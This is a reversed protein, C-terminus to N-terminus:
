TQSQDVLKTQDGLSPKDQEFYVGMERIDQILAPPNELGAFHGGFTHFKYSVLNGIQSIYEQPWFGVNYGFQSFLMPADTPAKTYVEPFGNANQAYMWLASLFSDTLYYLSVSTLIATNDLVSPPTGARPDAWSHRVARLWHRQAAFILQAILNFNFNFFLSRVATTQEILYGKGISMWDAGRQQTVKEEPSLPINKEELEQATPPVFNVWVFHGARVTTNFSSYLSYAVASGWDTGHLAFTSYGLVDTMLTNFIRATDDPWGHVLIVPIADADASTEHIFHVTQGDIDATYHNFENLKVQQAEWDFNQLWDSHLDRLVDLEIGKEQGVTPYLPKAPLRASNVLYELRQLGGSLNVSFPKLNFDDASCRDANVFTLFAATLLCPLNLSSRM